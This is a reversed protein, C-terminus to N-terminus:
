DMSLDRMGVQAQWVRLAAILVIANMLDANLKEDDDFPLISLIMENIEDASLYTHLNVTIHDCLKNIIAMPRGDALGTPDNTAIDQYVRRALTNPNLNQNKIM